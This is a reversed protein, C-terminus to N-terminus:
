LRGMNRFVMLVNWSQCSLWLRWVVHLIKDGQPHFPLVCLTASSCTMAPLVVAFDVWYKCLFSYCVLPCASHNFQDSGETKMFRQATALDKEWTAPITNKNWPTKPVFQSTEQSQLRDPTIQAVHVYRCVQAGHAEQKAKHPNLVRGIDLLRM